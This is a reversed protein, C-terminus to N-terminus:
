GPPGPRRPRGWAVGAQHEAIILPSLEDQVWRGSKQAAYTILARIVGAGSVARGTADTALRALDRLAVATEATLRLSYLDSKSKSPTGKARPM